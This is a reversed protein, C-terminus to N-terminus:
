TKEGVTLVVKKKSAIVSIIRDQPITIIPDTHGSSFHTLVPFACRDFGYEVLVEHLADDPIQSVETFKSIVLGHLQNFGDTMRLQSLFRRFWNINVEEAEEIFLIKGELKAAFKTGNLLLLTQLNGALALGKGRGECVVQVPTHDIVPEKTLDSQLNSSLHTPLEYRSIDIANRLYDLMEERYLPKSFSILAPGHLVSTIGKTNVAQLLVTTDSYGVIPKPNTVLLEWDIYDILEITKLGGWYSMVLDVEKNRICANFTEAKQKASLAGAEVSPMFVKVRHKSLFDIARKMLADEPPLADSIFLGIM